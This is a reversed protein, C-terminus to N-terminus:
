RPLNNRIVYFIRNHEISRNGMKKITANIAHAFAEKRKKYNLGRLWPRSRGPITQLGDLVDKVTLWTIFENKGILKLGSRTIMDQYQKMLTQDAWKPLSSLKGYKLEVFDDLAKEFKKFFEKTYADHLGRTSIDFILIGEPKLIKSCGRLFQKKREIYQHFGNLCLVTDVKKSVLKAIDRADGVIFSAQRPLKKKAANIMNRNIDILIFERFKTKTAIAKAMDGTGCPIDVVISSKGINGRRVLFRCYDHIYKKRVKSVVKTERANAVYRKFPAM